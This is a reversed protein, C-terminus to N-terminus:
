LLGANIVEATVKQFLLPIFKYDNATVTGKNIKDILTLWVQDVPNDIVNKNAWYNLADLFSLNDPSALSAVWMEHVIGQDWYSKPLYCNGNDGWGNWSNRAPINDGPREKVNYGWLYMSHGGLAAENDKDVDPVIGTRAVDQGEFSEYVTFGIQVVKGEALAARMNDYGIIRHYEKIKYRAADANAQETPPNKFNVPVYPNDSEPAIGRQQAVKLVDRLISGADQNVTGELLRVQYYSDLVSFDVNPLGAQNRLFPFVGRAFASEGCSGLSLQDFTPPLLHRLDVSEPLTVPKPAFVFDRSDPPSPKLTYKRM